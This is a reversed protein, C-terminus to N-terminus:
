NVSEEGTIKQKLLTDKDLPPNTLIPQDYGLGPNLIGKKNQNQALDNM